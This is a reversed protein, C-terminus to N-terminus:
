ESLVSNHKRVMMNTIDSEFAVINAWCISRERLSEDICTCVFLKAAIGNNCVPM